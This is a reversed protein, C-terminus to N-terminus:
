IAATVSRWADTTVIVHDLLRLGVEGAASHLRETTDVDAISPTPDGGPHNHALAFAVGDHRLVTSLVERVPVPCHKASGKAVVESHRVRMRGDAVIVLVQEQRAAGIVPRAVAAIDSSTELRVRLSPEGARGGLAFASVIRAAKAPGIGPSHALDSAEARALGAPGGWRM